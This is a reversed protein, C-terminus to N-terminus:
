ATFTDSHSHTETGGEVVTTTDTRVGVTTAGDIAAVRGDGGHRQHTRRDLHHLAGRRRKRAESGRRHYKGTTREQGGPSEAAVV